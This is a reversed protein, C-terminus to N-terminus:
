KRRLEILHEYQKNEVLCAVVRQDLCQFCALPDGSKAPCTLQNRLSAWRELLFGMIGLRWSNLPADIPVEVVGKEGCVVNITRGKFAELVGELMAIMDERNTSHSVPLKADRCIQMLETENCAQLSSCSAETM